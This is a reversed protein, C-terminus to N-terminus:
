GIAQVTTNATVTRENITSNNQSASNTNVPASATLGYVRNFDSRNFLRSPRGVKGKRLMAVAEVNNAAFKKQVTLKTQGSIRAADEITIMQTDDLDNINIVPLNNSM